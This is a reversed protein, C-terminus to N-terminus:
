TIIFSCMFILGNPFFGPTCVMTQFISCYWCSHSCCLSHLFVPYGLMYQLIFRFPPSIYSAWPFSPPVLKVKVTFSCASHGVRRLEYSNVIIFCLMNTNEFRSGILGKIGVSIIITCHKWLTIQELICGNM